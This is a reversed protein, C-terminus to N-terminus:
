YPCILMWTQRVEFAIAREMVNDQVDHNLDHFGIPIQDNIPFLPFNARFDLM